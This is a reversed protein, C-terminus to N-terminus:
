DKVESYTFIFYEGAKLSIGVPTPLMYPPTNPVTEQIYDPSDASTTVSVDITITKQYILDSPYATADAYLKEGTLGGGVAPAKQDINALTATVLVKYNGADDSDSSEVALSASNSSLHMFAPLDNGNDLKATYTTGYNCPTQTFVYSIQQKSHGIEYNSSISEAATLDTVACNGITIKFPVVLADVDPYNTLSVRLEYEYEGIWSDTNTTLIFEYVPHAFNPSYNNLGTQHKWFQLYPKNFDFVNPDTEHVYVGDKDKVAIKHTRPGCLEYMDAPFNEAYSDPFEEYAWYTRSVAGITTLQHTQDTIGTQAATLTSYSNTPLKLTTAECPDTM